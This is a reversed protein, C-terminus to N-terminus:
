LQPEANRLFAAKSNWLNNTGCFEDGDDTDDDYVNRVECCNLQNV